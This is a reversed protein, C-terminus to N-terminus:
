GLLEGFAEGLVNSLRSSYTATIHHEDRFMLTAGAITGCIEDNCFYDNMDIYRAGAEVAAAAESARAPASLATGRPVDCASTDDLHASLCVSPTRQMNPTDAIVATQGDLRDITATVAEAWSSSLSGPDRSGASPSYNSLIILAPDSANINEIAKQRWTICSSYPVGNLTSPVDFSACSSKTYTEVSYGHEQAMAYVAPFWQAAHSDGFLVIRPLSPDGYVCGSADESSYDRHCGDQYLDPQDESVESLTPTLNSPVFGTFSPPATPASDAVWQGSDLPRSASTVYVLSAIMVCIVSGAVATLISRRPRATILIRARRAPNEVFAYLLWAAPVCLVAILLGLWLPLEGLVVEPIVLAPWHVLYLSYSIGGVFLMGSTSLLGVPGFRPRFGGSVIVLATATTPILAWFGPFAISSDFLIVSAILAGMGLWGLLAAPAGNMRVTKSRVLFATIGGLCLEWARTPLSFFAWPQSVFTLIVGAILSAGFIAILLGLRSQTSRLFSWGVAIIAPWLLYFQEEIGLSWYHQFLSPTSEALYNTGQVAFLYNPVYLATAIAGQWVEKMLLPPFALAAALTSMILVVFSAPLIRRIRKAYFSAFHIAHDKEWSGVLHSTILFGSIVFFVDVGVYGGSLFPVGAHYLVVAGVAVARLGQIDPRFKDALGDTKAVSRTEINVTSM